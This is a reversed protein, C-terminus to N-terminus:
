LAGQREKAKKSNKKLSRQIMFWVKPTAKKWAVINGESGELHQKMCNKIGGKFSTNCFGCILKGGKLM